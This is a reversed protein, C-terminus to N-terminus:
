GVTIGVMCCVDDIGGDTCDVPVGVVGVFAGDVVGTIVIAVIQLTTPTALVMM